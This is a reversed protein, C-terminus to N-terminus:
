EVIEEEPHKLEDMIVLVLRERDNNIQNFVADIKKAALDVDKKEDIYVEFIKIRKNVKRKM